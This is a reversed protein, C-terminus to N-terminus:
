GRWWAASDAPLVVGDATVPVDTSALLLTGPVPLTVPASGTNVTCVFGDGRRFALVGEPSPLWALASDETEAGLEPLERRLALASRYLELM